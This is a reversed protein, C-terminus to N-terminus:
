SLARGNRRNALYDRQLRHLFAYSGALRVLLGLNVGERLASPLNWPIDRGFVLLVYCLAYYAVAVGGTVAFAITGCAAVAFWRSGLHISDNFALQITAVVAATLAAFMLAYIVSGFGMGWLTRRWNTYRDAQRPRIVGVFFGVSISVILLCALSHWWIDVVWSLSLWLFTRPPPDFLDTLVWGIDRVLSDIYTVDNDTSWVYYIGFPFLAILHLPLLLQLINLVNLFIDSFVNERLHLIKEQRYHYAVAIATWFLVGCVILLLIPILVDRWYFIALFATDIAVVTIQLAAVAPVVAIGVLLGQLGRWPDLKFGQHIVNAGLYMLMATPLALGVLEMWLSEHKILANWHFDAVGAALVCLGFVTMVVAKQWTKTFAEFALDSYHFTPLWTRNLLAAMATIGGLVDDSPLTSRRAKFSHTILAEFLDDTSIIGSVDSDIEMVLALFLPTGCLEMLEPRGSFCSALDSRRNERAIRLVDENSLPRLAYVADASIIELEPRQRRARENATLTEYDSVRCTIYITVIQDYQFAYMAEVFSPQASPEIEDLGDLYFEIEHTEIWQDVIRGAIKYDTQTQEILWKRFRKAASSSDKTVQNDRWASANIVIPISQEKSERAAALKKEVLGLLFITKGAGPEGLILVHQYQDNSAMAMAAISCSERDTSPAVSTKVVLPVAFVSRGSMRAGLLGKIWTREVRDLILHRARATVQDNPRPASAFDGMIIQQRVHGFVNLAINFVKM